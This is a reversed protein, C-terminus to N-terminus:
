RLHFSLQAKRIAQQGDYTRGDTREDTLSKCKQSRWFRKTLNLWLQYIMTLCLSNLITFIFPLEKKWPSIIALSYSNVSNTKLIKKGLVLLSIEILSLAFGRAHLSNLITCVLPWTRKLPSIIV